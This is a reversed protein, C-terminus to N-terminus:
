VVELYVSALIRQKKVGEVAIAAGNERVPCANQCFGCGRCKEPNVIPMPFGKDGDKQDVAAYPCFEACVLCFGKQTWGICKSKIVTAIGIQTRQKDDLSINKIAGTPCVQACNNCSELCGGRYADMKPAFWSGADLDNPFDTTLIKTPCVNVCAYCRSCLSSFLEKDGAGPPLVAQETKDKFFNKRLLFSPIVCALGFLLARRDRDFKEAYSLGSNHAFDIMYGLPCFKSCWIMPQFIGLILFVPIIIGSFLETFTLAGEFLLNARSFTSLPDFSLFLPFGAISSFLIGWFIFPSIKARLFNKKLSKFSGAEYITGLPCIWGCFFRGKKFFVLTLFLAPFLLLFAFREGRHASLSAFFSLPSAGPIIKAAWVPFLTTEKLFSKEYSLLRLMWEPLPGAMLFLSASLLCFIKVFWRKTKKPIV